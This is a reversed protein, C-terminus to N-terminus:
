ADRAARLGLAGSFALLGLGSGVDVAALLRDGVRTRIASLGVSLLTFWTLTGCGVGAVLLLTQGTGSVASATSAAAFVAAWSLITTPNSATAALSTLFAQRPTAVEELSEGGLRVRFASWLTRAGLAALVAAGLLGLALQLGNIALLSGAGLAGLLAYTADIVAAGAGIAIGTGLAGRLVTRICLLSIPGIAAAVVFGLGFGLALVHM